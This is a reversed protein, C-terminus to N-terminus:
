KVAIRNNGRLITRFLHRKRAGIHKQTPKQQQKVQHLFYM